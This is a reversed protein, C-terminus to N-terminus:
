TGATQGKGNCRQSAKITVQLLLLLNSIIRCLVQSYWLWFLLQWFVKIYVRQLM